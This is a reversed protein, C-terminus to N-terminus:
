SPDSNKPKHFQNLPIQLYSIGNKVPTPLQGARLNIQLAPLILKPMCLAQDRANRQKVFGDLKTNRNIQVNDRAQAGVSTEIVFESRGPTLYDHCLFMRTEDALEYLRQISHFLQAADGGPFDTRACGYDPMFVTDGVFVADGILFSVCALTHGPTALVEIQLEGLELMDGDLLLLDFQSGDCTFEPEFGFLPAFHRQVSTIGQGIATKASLQESLFGAASMHDAHAHTELIWLINLRQQCCYEVIQEASSTQTGASVPDYDLVPDIIVGKGSKPDHVVYQATFTAPDFFSKVTPQNIKPAM